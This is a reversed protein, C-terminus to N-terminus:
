PNITIESISGNTQFDKTYVVTAKATLTGNPGTITVTPTSSYGAGPNTITVGTVVGDTVTAVASAKTKQWTESKKGNYRYYNSVEDLRENTIGYPGLVKLLAAKNRQALEASPARDLGSPTVGSFAERFVETPVGLASAILVVPRGHDQPDTQFGNSIVVQVGSQESNNGSGATNDNVPPATAAGNKNAPGGTDCSDGKRKDGPKGHGPGKERPPGDKVAKDPNMGTAAQPETQEALVKSSSSLALGGSLALIATLTGAIIMKSRKNMTIKRELQINFNKFSIKSPSPSIITFAGFRDTISKEPAL